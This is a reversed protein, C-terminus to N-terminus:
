GSSTSGRWGGVAELSQGHAADAEHGLQRVAAASAGSSTWSAPCREPSAWTGAGRASSRTGRRCVRSTSCWASSRGSAADTWSARTPWGAKALLDRNYILSTGELIWSLGYLKGGVAPLDVAAPFYEPLKVENDKKVLEDLPRVIKRQAFTAIWDQHTYTVDPAERGGPSVLIKKTLENYPVKTPQLTFSPARQPWDRM